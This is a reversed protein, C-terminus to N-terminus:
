PFFYCGWKLNFIYDTFKEYAFLATLDFDNNGDFQIINIRCLIVNTDALHRFHNECQQHSVIYAFSLHIDQVQTVRDSPLCM